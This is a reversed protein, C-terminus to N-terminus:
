EEVPLEREGEVVSPFDFLLGNLALETRVGEREVAAASTANTARKNGVTRKIEELRAQARALLETQAADLSDALLGALAAPAHKLLVLHGEDARIAELGTACQSITAWASSPDSPLRATLVPLSM